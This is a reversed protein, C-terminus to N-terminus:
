ANTIAGGDVSLGAYEWVGLLGGEKFVQRVMDDPSEPLGNVYQFHPWDPFTRFSSGSQLGVSEGAAVIAKWAPHNINWDPTNDAFPAVDVALGFNHYSYGPPANTVVQVANVINGHAPPPGPNAQDRGKLWLALQDTWSRLGQTVKITVGQAALIDATARIKGALVPNVQALRSESTDDMVM